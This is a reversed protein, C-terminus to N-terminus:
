NNYYKRYNVYRTSVMHGKVSDDYFSPTRYHMSKVMPFLEKMAAEVSDVYTELTTFQDRPVYCLVDYLNQTTSFGQFQTTGEDRLVLYPKTCEGQHQAPAYVDFGKSKLHKFIDKYRTNEM